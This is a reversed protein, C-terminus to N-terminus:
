RLCNKWFILHLLYLILSIWFIVILVAFYKGFRKNVLKEQKARERCEDMIEIPILKISFKIMLPLLILDDIYGIVPIFDPILDIPSFAYGITILIIAKALFPTRKDNLALYLAVIELKLAYARKKLRELVSM